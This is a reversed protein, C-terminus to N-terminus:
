NHDISPLDTVCAMPDDISEFWVPNEDNLVDVSNYRENDIRGDFGKVPARLPTEATLKTNQSVSQKNEANTQLEKKKQRHGQREKVQEKIQKQKLQVARFESAMASSHAAEKNEPRKESCPIAIKPVVPNTRNTGQHGKVPSKSKHPSNSSRQKSKHKPPEAQSLASSALDVDHKGNSNAKSNEQSSQEKIKQLPTIL